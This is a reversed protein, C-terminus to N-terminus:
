KTEGGQAGGGHRALRPPLFGFDKTDPAPLPAGARSAFSGLLPTVGVALARVLVLRRSLAPSSDDPRDPATHTDCM